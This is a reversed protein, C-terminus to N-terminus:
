SVTVKVTPSVGSANLTTAPVVVRYTYTAATKMVFSIAYTGDSRVTASSV